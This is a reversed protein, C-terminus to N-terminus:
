ANTFTLSSKDVTGETTKNSTLPITVNATPQTNLVVNFTSTGGAETTTLPTTPTITIGATDNDAIVLTQQQTGNETGNTVGTIDVIVTELGEAIQDNVGTVTATGSTSGAPISISTSSATYDTGGGTATGAYGLNVTVAQTSPNSLTATLTATGGNEALPSGTAGLTVSPQTENDAITLVTTTQTGLVANSGAALSLNITESGEFTADDVVPITVTKSSEGVAFNVTLPFSSSTYDTGSGTATGGTISVTATAAQNLAGTRTLTVANSTGSNEVTGYTAAGFQINSVYDTTTVAVQRDPLIDFRDDSAADNVSVTIKSNQSGDVIGDFPGTVTVIQPVNWNAATFTLVSASLTVETADSPTLNIVVDSTPAEPLAVTFIGTTGDEGVTLTTPSVDLGPNLSTYYNLTQSAGPTLTGVDFTIFMAVDNTSTYGTAQPSDYATPDYLLPPTLGSIGIGTRARSDSSFFSIPANSGGSLTSYPGGPQEVARAAAFGQAAVTGLIENVTASSGFVDSTNDPDFSRMFRVSDLTSVGLNTLTVTNKFSKDNVDFSINQTVRLNGGLIGVVQASLTNGVSNNIITTGTFNNTGGSRAATGTTAVGGIKYGAVFREEPTGPLFYDIRLDTDTGFGDTDSVMGIGTGIKRGLFGTPTTAGGFAGNTALGLEVFNGGLYVEGGTTTSRAGPLALIGGYNNRTTEDFVKSATIEGTSFELEWDGGLASNGTLNKSAGIVAGTVQSLQHVFSEGLFGEAVNCGYLLINPANWQQLQTAYRNLTELSLQTNGLHLSGPSGHSIIHVAEVFNSNGLIQTIQEVGDRKPDLVVAEIGPVVGAVLMQYDEVTPDIFAIAKKTTGVLAIDEILAQTIQEIARLNDNFIVVEATDANQILSQYDQLDSDVFTIQKNMNPVNM